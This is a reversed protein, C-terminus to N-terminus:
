VKLLLGTLLLSLAKSATHIVGTLGCYEFSKRKIQKINLDEGFNCNVLKEKLGKVQQLEPTKEFYDRLFYHKQPKFVPSSAINDCVMSKLNLLKGSETHHSSHKRHFSSVFERPFGLIYLVLKDLDHTISDLSNKGYLEKEVIAFIIKHNYTHQINKKYIDFFDRVHSLFGTANERLVPKKVFQDTSERLVTIPVNGRFNLDTRQPPLSFNFYKFNRLSSIEM